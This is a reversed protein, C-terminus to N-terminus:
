ELYVVDVLVTKCLPSRLSVTGQVNWPDPPCLLRLQKSSRALKWLNRAHRIVKIILVANCKTVLATDFNMFHHGQNAEYELNDKTTDYINNM